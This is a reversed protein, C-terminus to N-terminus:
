ARPAPQTAKQAWAAVQQEDRQALHDISGLIVLTFVAALGLSISRQILPHSM